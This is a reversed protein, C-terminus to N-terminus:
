RFVELAHRRKRVPVERRIMDLDHGFEHDLRPLVFLHVRLRVESGPAPITALSSPALLRLSPFSARLAPPSSVQLLFPPNKATQTSQGSWICNRKSKSLDGLEGASQLDM